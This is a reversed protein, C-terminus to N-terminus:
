STEKQLQPLRERAGDDLRMRQTDTAYRSAVQWWEHGPDDWWPSDYSDCWIYVRERNLMFDHILRALQQLYTREKKTEPEWERFLRQAIQEASSTRLDESLAAWGFGAHPWGLPTADEFWWTFGKGLHFTERADPDILAYEIGM